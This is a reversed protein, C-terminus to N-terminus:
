DPEQEVRLILSDVGRVRVRRGKPIPGDMSRARWLAGKVLVGGEPNLDSRTEGVLGVLGVQTTRIRERARLAVTMGFGFFLLGGVSAVVILWPALRVAPAVTWWALASGFAFLATGGLTLAQVRRLVVDLGQLGAGAVILALGLWNVPVVSLGYGAFVLFVVGAIGAMGFGPQTLEFALGWLGLVLLVYVAGPTGVAHLVRRTLGIEHFRVTVPRDPRNATALVVPGRMTHVTRGDLARLLSPVDEAVLAVAGADRAAAAAMVRGNVISRVAEASAGSGPALALLTASRTAVPGPDERSASTDLDFPRAPGIGAGPAMAALSSGYLLFLAGGAARAGSPGVWSVVPVAASRIFRGLRVGEDGYGGRSDVQLIVTAGVRKSREISGRVYAAQAPDIVGDVKVVDVSAAAAADWRAM